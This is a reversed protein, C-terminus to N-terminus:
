DLHIGTQSASVPGVAAKIIDTVAAGGAKIVNATDANKSVVVAIISIGVILGLVTVFGEIADKGM